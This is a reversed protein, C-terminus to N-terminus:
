LNRGLYAKVVLTTFAYSLVSDSSKVTSTTPLPVVPLHAERLSVAEKRVVIKLEVADIVELVNVRAGARTVNTVALM